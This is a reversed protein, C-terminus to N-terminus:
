KEGAEALVFTTELKKGARYFTVRIKDGVAKHGYLYKRLEVTKAIPQGDLQVIVDQSKIGAAKAPGSVELVILGTKVSPPLKLVEIGHFGDLETTSIGILPRKIKHNHILEEIILKADDIPIAFGLGEVGMDAVKLSNIGVVKGEMNVLAGGSNGQNIAADTQILDMEWDIEGDQSLSIPVTRKITSVIGKTFTPSFGLGLPNGVAIVSEGVELESSIGFEAVTQIGKGDIELVALDSYRDKGVLTAKRKEGLSTVVEYSIGGDIVHYNTVVLAKDGEKKCIVGSGISGGQDKSNNSSQADHSLISVIAPVIKGAAVVTADSHIPKVNTNVSAPEAVHVGAWNRTLLITAALIIFLVAAGGIGIERTLAIRKFPFRRGRVPLNTKVKKSFGRSKKWQRERKTPKPLYYEDDFLSV